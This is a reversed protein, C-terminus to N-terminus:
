LSQLGRERVLRWKLDGIEKSMHQKTVPGYVGAGKEKASEIIKRDLQYALLANKTREGFTGTIDKQPLHGETVLFAQLKKVETGKDGMSLLKSPVNKKQVHETVDIKVLMAKSKAVVIKVKWAALIAKKTSPGIRGSGGDTVKQIVGAHLQFQTVTKKFDRDFVGNTRGHYHGLYRLLKQAQRVPSGKSGEQLGIDLLPLNHVGISIAAVLAVSTEPTVVSGDGSLGYDKQFKLLSAQTEPGFHGTAKPTFYGLDKLTLQLTRVSYGQTNRTANKLIATPEDTPVSTLYRTSADFGGLDMRESPAESGQPYVTGQVRRVGWALARALGEEGEGMWLDIRHLDEGWEIIRSGRDHVTGVVGISPLEIVTGFSYEPPAAIMGPYVDTGDAGNTGKGNFMIEEEYNGRFYCCQGPLPSYYATVVFEQIEPKQLAYVPSVFSGLLSTVFIAIPYIRRKKVEIFM